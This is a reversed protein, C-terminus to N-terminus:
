YGFGLEVGITVFFNNDFIDNTLGESTQGGYATMGGTLLISGLIFRNKILHFGFGHSMSYQTVADQTINEMKM